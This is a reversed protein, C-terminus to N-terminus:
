CRQPIQRVANYAHTFLDKHPCASSFALRIRRVSTEVRAGIKILALRLTTATARALKTGKLATRRLANMLTYAFTAFHLRLQNARLTAASTRSAFLDLQQEKIRNEMEGRACYHKEYLDKPTAYDEPLNTVIFRPNSGKNLHEAKAIVRRPRCWSKHTQYHFHAFVRAAEKTKDHLEKAQVLEKGIRQLLRTNKALGTLYYLGNDECTTFLEERAFGSDGRVIIRTTPWAARIRAVLTRLLEPAGDAADRDSTRLKAALVHDGCTVYLPLYCYADYYGHFFRGEQHGHLVFDTADFDLVIEGPPADHAEIFLTVLLAEMADADHTVKHYRADAKAKEPTLELRNLTSKGALPRGADRKRARMKGEVDPAGVAAAWLPDRSLADHDNLDEYGAALGLVRQRVLTVVAHEVADQRRLDTFCGAVRACIDLRADLERLLLLGGDSSITGGDFAGVVVRRGLGQFELQGEGCQTNM